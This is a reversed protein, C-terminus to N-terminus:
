RTKLLSLRYAGAGAETMKVQVFFWGTEDAKARYRLTATAGRRHSQAAPLSSLSLALADVRDTGPRWLVITLGRPGTVKATLKRGGRLHVRYVDTHDEWYDATARITRRARSWLTAASSGADDNPEFADAAPVRGARVAALSRAIDLRGWGSLADRGSECAACGTAASADDAWRTLLTAVQAATLSPYQGFLLAAGAAVQPSAFSTGRAHKYQEPGCDAYGQNACGHRQATLTRPLTSFIDNGPAAIDNHIRDRSSFMPVAGSREVASVGLVRPLAAPYNAYFWPQRPAETANGVAAVVLVGKSQAYRVAAAELQSYTDREPRLPDRLGGLSLNIVRAGADAAWRIASAEAEVPVTGDAKVVKAVLLEANLGMGAIGHGNNTGAAIIGAVFTGHGQRDNARGGVFSRAAAIRGDLDPHGIDVGSDIVAVRVPPLPPMANWFDFARTQTLYWQRPALPDSPAFALTRARLRETWAVGPVRAVAHRVGPARLLITHLKPDRREVAVGPLADLRAAVAPLSSGPRVGVAVDAASAAAPLAAGVTAAVLAFLATRRM